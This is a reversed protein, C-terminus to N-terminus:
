AREKGPPQALGRRWHEERTQDRMATYRGSRPSRQILARLGHCLGTPARACRRVGFLPCRNPLPGPPLAPPRHDRGRTVDGRRPWRSATVRSTLDRAPGHRAPGHGPVPVPQRGAGARSAMGKYCPVTCLPRRGRPTPMLQKTARSLSVQRLSNYASLHQIFSAEFTSPQGPRTSCLQAASECHWAPGLAARGCRARALEADM